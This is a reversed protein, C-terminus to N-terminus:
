LTDHQDDSDVCIIGEFAPFHDKIFQYGVKLAHGKGLNPHYSIVKVHDLVQLQNFIPDYSPNFGDNVIVINLFDEKLQEVYTIFAPAPEYSPILIITTTNM